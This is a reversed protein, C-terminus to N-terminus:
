DAPAAKKDDVIYGFEQLNVPYMNDSGIYFVHHRGDVNRIIPRDAQARGPKDPGFRFPALHVTRVFHTSRIPGRRDRLAVDSRAVRVTEAIRKRLHRWPRCRCTMPIAAAATARHVQNSLVIYIDGDRLRLFDVWRTSRAIRFSRTPGASTSVSIRSCSVSTTDPPALM